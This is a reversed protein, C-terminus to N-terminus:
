RTGEELYKEDFRMVLLCDGDDQYYQIPLSTATHTDLGKRESTPLIRKEREKERKKTENKL